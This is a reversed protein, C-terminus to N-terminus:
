ISLIIRALSFYVILATGDVITTLVPGAMVAPDLKIFKAALPLMAGVTKALIVTAFLALSVTVAVYADSGFLIVRACNFAALIGGCILAVRLEKFLVRFFDSLKIDGLAMGRIILTASQTGADGCTDMLLPIFTALIPLAALMKEDGAVISGTIFVSLNLLLLWFIRNKSMTFIGTKLYADESPIISAMKEFDETAEEEQITFADDFTVIGVLRADSDVVPIALFGYKRFQNGLEEQDDYTRAFIVNPEMIDKILSKKDTLFLTKATVMGILKRASDTVYCTYITEKDTGISRIRTFADAVTMSGKLDVYEITMISGVSDEPYKLFHNILDRKEPAVNALVRKVVSAPMEEIFDVADDLFLEDIVGSIEHDTIAEIINQQIDPDLYAFVDAAKDKSLLRFIKVFDQEDLEEIGLAIDVENRGDLKQRLVAHNPEELLSLITNKM